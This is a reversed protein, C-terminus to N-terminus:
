QFLLKCHIAISNQLKFKCDVQCLSSLIIATVKLNSNFMLLILIYLVEYPLFINIEPLRRVEGNLLVKRVYKRRNHLKLEKERKMAEARTAFEEYHILEWSV